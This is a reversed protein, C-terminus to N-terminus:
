RREPRHDRRRTPEHNLSPGKTTATAATLEVAPEDALVRDLYDQMQRALVRVNPEQLMSSHGGPVDYAVVGRSARREWGFLPDDYRDIYPEDAGTGQTARFLVLQGDFPGEPRYRKEAFLYVARVPIQKLFWPLRRGRDLYYRFLRMRTEDRLSEFQEQILCMTLNRAKRLAKVLITLVRRGLPLPQEPHFVKAFSQARETVFRWVKPPAAVDAADILAVMAVREGQGQLQRAVEFAIVGGACMGGLLYPGHPQASQIRELHAAAIETLRTQAMPVNEWGRPQLGFVAHDPKLLLALNRYLMTEGDGDHILFVPPKDGGDRLRVLPDRQPAPGGAVLQALQEITPAQLLSTM